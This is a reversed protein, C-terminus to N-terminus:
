ARVPLHALASSIEISRACDFHHQPCATKGHLGCPRCALNKSTEVTHAAKGLPGFGFAPITSCYIAVVPADVASCLHMPASDNVYNMVAGRMLMASEGLGLIGCAIICDRHTVGDRIEKALALDSPGGTIYVRYATLASVLEKWKAAPWAKTFWVSAPSITIYPKEKAGKLIEGAQKSVAMDDIYLKPLQAPLHTLGELLKHNRETEHLYHGEENTGIEHPFRKSFCFSFPNKAFGRTETAGSFCTMLGSAGFRQLNIVLDFREKRIQRILRFLGRYKDKNKDWIFLRVFPHGNFLGESGKRVLYTIQTDPFTKHLAELLATGM